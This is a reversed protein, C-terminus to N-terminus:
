PQPTAPIDPPDTTRPPALYPGLVTGDNVLAFLQESSQDVLFTGNAFRQAAMGVEQANVRAFGIRPRLDPVALWMDGIVGQPVVLGRPAQIGTTSASPPDELYEFEPMDSQIIAWVADISPDHYIVGNEFVQAQAFFSFAEQIPCGMRQNVITETQWVTLYTGNVAINCRAVDATPAPITADVAFLPERFSEFGTERQAEGVFNGIYPTETPIITATPPIPTPTSAARTAARASADPTPSIYVTAIPKVMAIETTTPPTTAPTCASVAISILAILILSSFVSRM